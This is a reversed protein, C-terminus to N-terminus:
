AALAPLDERTSPREHIHTCGPVQCTGGPDDDLRSLLAEIRAAESSDMIGMDDGLATLAPARIM